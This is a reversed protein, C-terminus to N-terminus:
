TETIAFFETRGALRNIELDMLIEDLSWGAVLWRRLRVRPAFSMLRLM